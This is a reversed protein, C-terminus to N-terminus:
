PYVANSGYPTGATPRAAEPFVRPHGVPPANDDDLFAFKLWVEAAALDEAGATNACRRVCVQTIIFEIGFCIM